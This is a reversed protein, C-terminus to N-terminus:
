DADKSKRPEKVSPNQSNEEDFKEIMAEVLKLMRQSDTEDQVRKALDRWSEALDDTSAYLPTAIQKVLQVPVQEFHPRPRTM